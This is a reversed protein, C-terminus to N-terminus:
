DTVRDVCRPAPGGDLAWRGTVRLRPPAHHRRRRDRHVRGDDGRVVLQGAVTVDTATGIVDGSPMEARVRQGLTALEERYRVRLADADAPLLDFADLLAALLEVRDVDDGLRAAGDPGWGVNIASASSSRARRDGSPSCAPSSRATSCSTTRGSSGCIAACGSAVRPRTSPPWASAACWSARTPRCSTSCCRSWCTRGPRRRGGAISGAGAPRRTIPSWCAATPGAKPATSCTPTRAGPRPSTSSPGGTRGTRRWSAGQTRTASPPWWACRCQCGHQLLDQDGVTALDGDADDAGAALEADGGHRHVGLEVPVRKVDPQGVLRERQTAARGGLAVEVGLRDEVRDPAATGVAHVGAVAEEGLVGVEGPRDGLHADREDSRRGFRDLLHAVLHRAPLGRQAAACRDHGAGGLEGAPGSSM